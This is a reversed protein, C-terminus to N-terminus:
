CNSATYLLRLHNHWAFLKRIALLGAIVGALAPQPRVAGRHMCCMARAGRLSALTRARRAVYRSVHSITCAQTSIRVIRDDVKELQALKAGIHVRQAVCVISAHWLTRAQALMRLICDVAEELQALM